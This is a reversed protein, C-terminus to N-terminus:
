TVDVVGQADNGGAEGQAQGVVCKCGTWWDEVNGGVAKFLHPLRPHCDGQDPAQKYTISHRGGRDWRGQMCIGACQSEDHRQCSGLDAAGGREQCHLIVDFAVGVETSAVSVGQGRVGAM